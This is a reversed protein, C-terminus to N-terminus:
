RNRAILRRSERRPPVKGEGGGRGWERGRTPARQTQPRPGARRVGSEVSRSRSVVRPRSQYCFGAARRRVADGPPDCSAPLLTQYLGGSVQRLQEGPLTVFALAYGRCVCM